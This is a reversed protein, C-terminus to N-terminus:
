DYKKRGPYHGIKDIKIDATKSSVIEVTKPGHRKKQKSYWKAENNEIDEPTNISGCIEDIALGLVPLSRKVLLSVGCHRGGSGYPFDVIDYTGDFHAQRLHQIFERCGDIVATDHFAIVGTSSLRPYIAEFDNAIGKYSHDGDIFAFDIGNPHKEALIREFNERDKVTDIQVLEFNTVGAASLVNGVQEKSGMQAFQSKLGHIGWLDFGTYKGGTAQAAQALHVAMDGFQVGVEVM